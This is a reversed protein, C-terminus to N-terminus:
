GGNRRWFKPYLRKPLDRLIGAKIEQQVASNARWVQCTDVITAAMSQVTAVLSDPTMNREEEPFKLTFVFGQRVAPALNTLITLIHSCGQVGGYIDMVNKTFGKQLSIGVLKEPSVAHSSCELYPAKLTSFEAKEIVLKSNIILRVVMHHIIAEPKFWLRGTPRTDKLCARVEIKDSSYRRTKIDIIRSHGAPGGLPLTNM